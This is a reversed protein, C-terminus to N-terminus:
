GPGDARGGRESGSDAEHGGVRHDSLLRRLEDVEILRRGGLRCTRIEGREILRYITSRDVGILRGAEAAGVALPETSGGAGATM